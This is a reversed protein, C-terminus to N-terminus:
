DWSYTAAAGANLTATASKNKYRIGFTQPTKGTNTVILVKKGAPTRFAVNALSDNETSAIRKSGPRVLKSAHAISYYAINRTVTDGALTVAGQCSSCGGRDTFPKFQPDAALNWEIVNKSWNRMAGVLLRQVPSSINMTTTNVTRGRGFDVVMQESFYINKDPHAAHVDSLADITGGYLHFASGDIYKRAAPDDLISIPYDPRDANHDYILIKTKIHAAQFAPGLFNKVFDAQDPAVMLVSPNNGPHLPENQVTIADITIGAAKMGQIYKVFYKAYAKYYEPKLRGGRTDNNTKMWAPPSWPSGLIKISPAIALIEKMVPIVDKRDPGLDFKAMATDTEGAPVDDYSFVRENLDSAGISLRLYSIGINTGDPNFFEKLLATRAAPSMQIIHMASGGTLAFGFGDVSQFTKSDDVDIVPQGGPAGSFPLAGPQLQFLQSRDPNTIWQSIGNKNQAQLSLCFLVLCLLCAYRQFRSLM